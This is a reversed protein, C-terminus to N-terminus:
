RACAGLPWGIVARKPHNIAVAISTHTFM